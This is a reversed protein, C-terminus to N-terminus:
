MLEENKLGGGAEGTECGEGADSLKRERGDVWGGLGSCLCFPSGLAMLLGPLPGVIFPPGWGQSCSCGWIALWGGTGGKFSLSDSSSSKSLKPSSPLSISLVEM